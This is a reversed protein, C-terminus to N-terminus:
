GSESLLLISIISLSVVVFSVLAVRSAAPAIAVTSFPKGNTM